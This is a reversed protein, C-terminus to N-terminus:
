YVIKDLIGKIKAILVGYNTIQVNNQKCKNIKSLIYQRNQTCGGCHVVLKYQSWDSPEDMGRLFEFAVQKKTYQKILQPLLVSGIDKHSLTHSCAEMILVKDGDQLNELSNAGEIFTDIDGNYKAFLVSFSTIATENGVIEYVFDFVSSDTIVLNVQTKFKQYTKAFNAKSAVISNAGKDVIERITISQPLILRGTPAGEDQPVCLLITDGQKVLGNLFDIKNASFHQKIKKVVLEVQNIESADIVIENDGDAISENNCGLDNKYGTINHCVLYKKGDLKCKDLWFMDLSDLREGCVFIALDASCFAKEVKKLRDEALEGKDDYGATDILQVRGIGDIETMRFVNDSTSGRVSSVISVNEKALSNVLTSKGSNIKGFVGIVIKDMVSKIM